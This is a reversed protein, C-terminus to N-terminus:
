FSSGLVPILVLWLLYPALRVTKLAVEQLWNLLGASASNVWEGLSQRWIPPLRYRNPLASLQKAYQDLQKAYNPM